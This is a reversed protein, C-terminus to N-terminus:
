KDRGKLQIRYDTGRALPFDCDAKLFGEFGPAAPIGKSVLGESLNFRVAEGAVLAIDADAPVTGGDEITGAYSLVCSGDAATTGFADGTTNVLVIGRDAGDRNSVFPYVVPEPDISRPLMITEAEQSLTSEKNPNNNNGKAKSTLAYGFARPFDCSVGISGEFDPAGTISLSLGDALDFVFQQGANVLVNQPPLVPRLADGQYALTCSGNQPADGFPNASANSIVIQTEFGDRSSVWPLLMSSSSAGDSPDVYSPKLGYGYLPTSKKGGRTPLSLRAFGTPGFDCSAAVYGEFNPAVESLTLVVQEGQGFPGVTMPPPAGDSYYQLDCYGVYAGDEANLGWPNHIAIETDRNGRNSGYPFLLM